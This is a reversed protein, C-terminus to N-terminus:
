REEESPAPGAGARRWEDRRLRYLLHPRLPHGEPLRPHEFAGDPRMGLRRMLGWSRENAPQTFAVVEPLGLPGFAADLALGAAERALGRGWFAPFLRWGIEVAPTFRAEFSVRQPGCFGILHGNERPEAAWFCFGDRAELERLRALMADSEARSLPAAFHRMVEPDANLAAFADADDERWPRLRVRSGDLIM